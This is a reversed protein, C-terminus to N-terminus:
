EDFRGRQYAAFEISAPYLRRLHSVYVNEASRDGRKREIKVATWLNDATLVDVKSVRNMYFHAREYEARMYYLKAMNANTSPNTPDVRFARNLYEETEKEKKM